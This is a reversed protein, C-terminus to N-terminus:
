GGLFHHSSKLTDQLLVVKWSITGGRVVLAWHLYWLGAHFRDASHDLLELLLVLAQVM